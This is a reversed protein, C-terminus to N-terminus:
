PVINRISSEDVLNCGYCAHLSTPQLCNPLRKTKVPIEGKLESNIRKFRENVPFGGTIKAKLRSGMTMEDLIVPSIGTLGDTRRQIKLIATTIVTLQRLKSSLILREFSFVLSYCTQTDSSVQSPRQLGSDGYFPPSGAAGES